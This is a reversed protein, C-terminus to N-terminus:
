KKEELFAELVLELNRCYRDNQVAEMVPIVGPQQLDMNVKTTIIM